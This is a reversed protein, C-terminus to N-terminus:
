PQLQFKGALCSISLLANRESAKQNHSFTQLKGSLYLFVFGFVAFSFSSHGSPFSKRGETIIKPDGTCDLNQTRGSMVNFVSDDKPYGLDPWCRFFFDPRPRGITMKLINTIFGNLPLLLTICLLASKADGIRYDEKRTSFVYSSLVCITPVIFVMIWLYKAPFYSETSPHGYLHSEDPHVIRNFPILDKSELLLFGLLLIIRTVVIEIYNTRKM